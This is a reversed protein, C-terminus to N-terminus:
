AHQAFDRPASGRHDSMPLRGSETVADHVRVVHGNQTQGDVVAGVSEHVTELGVVNAVVAIRMTAVGPVYLRSHRVPIEITKTAYKQAQPQLFIIQARCKRTVLLIKKGDVM